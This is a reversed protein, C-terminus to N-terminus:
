KTFDSNSSYKEFPSESIINIVYHCLNIFIPLSPSYGILTDNDLFVLAFDGSSTKAKIFDNMLCEVEVKKAPFTMKIFHPFYEFRWELPTEMTMLINDEYYRNPGDLASFGFLQGYGWVNNLVM